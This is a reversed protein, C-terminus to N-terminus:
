ITGFDEVSQENLSFMKSLLSLIGVFSKVNQREIIPLNRQIIVIVGKEQLAPVLPGDNPLVVKVMAGEQALRSSLRLLSRSAGYLDSGSHVFLIRLNRVDM